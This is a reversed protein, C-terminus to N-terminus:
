PQLDPQVLDQQAAMVQRIDKYVGPVEDAGAALVLPLPDGPVLGQIGNSGLQATDGSTPRNSARNALVVRPREASSIPVGTVTITSATKARLREARLSARSRAAGSRAPGM